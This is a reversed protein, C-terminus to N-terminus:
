AMGGAGAGANLFGMVGTYTREGGYEIRNSGDMLLITPFGKVGMTDVIAKDAKEDYLKVTVSSGDALKLPSAAVLKQFEPMAKKCHGCWEAKVIVLEKGSSFGEYSSGGSLKLVVVLVLAIILLTSARIKM